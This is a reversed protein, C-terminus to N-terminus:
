PSRWISVERLRQVMERIMTLSLAIPYSSTDLRLGDLARRRRRAWWKPRHVTWYRRGRMKSPMNPWDSM